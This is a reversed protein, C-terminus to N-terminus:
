EDLYTRTHSAALALTSGNHLVSSAQPTLVGAIGLAMLLSNFGITFRYGSHM